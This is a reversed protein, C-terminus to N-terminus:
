GSPCPTCSDKTHSLEMLQYIHSGALLSSLLCGMKGGMEPSGGSGEPECVLIFMHDLVAEVVCARHEGAGQGELLFLLEPTLALHTVAKLKERPSAGVGSPQGCSRIHAQTIQALPPM